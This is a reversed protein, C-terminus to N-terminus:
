FSKFLRLQPLLGVVSLTNLTAEVGSNKNANHPGFFEQVIFTMLFILRSIEIINWFSVLESLFPLIKGKFQNKLIYIKM